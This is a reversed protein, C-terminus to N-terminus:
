CENEIALRPREGFELLGCPEVMKNCRESKLSVADGDFVISLDDWAGAPGIRDESGSVAKLHDVKDAPSGLCASRESGDRQAAGGM